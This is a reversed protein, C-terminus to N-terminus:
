VAKATKSLERVIMRMDDWTERKRHENMRLFAPDHTPMVLMGGMRHFRGRLEDLPRESGLLAQAAVQGLACVISPGIAALQRRLFPMCTFIEEQALARGDPPACKVLSTLYVDPRSLSLVLTIIKTLMDGEQGGFPEGTADDAQTPAQGVFVLRARPNGQGFVISKRNSCLGCRTCAGLDALVAELTEREVQEAAAARLSASQSPGVIRIGSRWASALHVKMGAVLRQRDPQFKEPQSM